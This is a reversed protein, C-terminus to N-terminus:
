QLKEGFTKAISRACIWVCKFRKRGRVGALAISAQSQCARSQQFGDRPAFVLMSTKEKARPTTLCTFSVIRMRQFDDYEASSDRKGKREESRDLVALQPAKTRTLAIPAAVDRMQLYRPLLNVCWLRSIACRSRKEPEHAAFGTLLCSFHRNPPNAPLKVCAQLSAYPTYVRQGLGLSSESREGGYAATKFSVNLGLRSLSFNRCRRIVRLSSGIRWTARHRGPGRRVIDESGCSIINLM